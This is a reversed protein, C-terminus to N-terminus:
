NKTELLLIEVLESNDAQTFDIDKFNAIKQQIFKEQNFHTEKKYKRM